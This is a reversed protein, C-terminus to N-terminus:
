VRQGDQIGTWLLLLIIIFNEPLETALGRGCLLLATLWTPTALDLLLLLATATRDGRGTLKKSM